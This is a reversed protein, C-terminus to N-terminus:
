YATSCDKRGCGPGYRIAVLVIALGHLGGLWVALERIREVDRTRGVVYEAADRLSIAIRRQLTACVEGVSAKVKADPRRTEVETLVSGSLADSVQLDVDITAVRWTPIRFRMEPRDIKVKTNNVIQIGASAVIAGLEVIDLQLGSVAPRRQMWIQGRACRHVPRRFIGTLEPRNPRNFSRRGVFEMRYATDYRGETTEQAPLGTITRGVTGENIAVIFVVVPIRPQLQGDLLDREIEAIPISIDRIVPREPSAKAVTREELTVLREDERDFNLDWLIQDPQVLVRMDPGVNRGRRTKARQGAREQM